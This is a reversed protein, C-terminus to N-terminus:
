AYYLWGSVSSVLKKECRGQSDLTSLALTDLKVLVNWKEKATNLAWRIMQEADVKRELDASHLLFIICAVYAVEFKRTAM